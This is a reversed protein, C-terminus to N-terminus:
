IKSMNERIKPALRTHMIIFKWCCQYTILSFLDLQIGKNMKQRQLSIFGELISSGIKMTWFSIRVFDNKEGGGREQGSHSQRTFHCRSIILLLKRDNRWSKKEAKVFMDFSVLYFLSSRDLIERTHVRKIELSRHAHWFSCLDVYFSLSLCLSSSVFFSM